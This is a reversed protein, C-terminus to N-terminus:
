RNATMHPKNGTNRSMGGTFTKEIRELIQAARVDWTGAELLRGHNRDVFEQYDGVNQLIDDLQEAPRELDAEIVPNYGFLEVLEEPARGLPLCKSAFTEFYRHTVTEIGAAYPHTLAGPFCISIKANGMGEALSRKDNPFIKQGKVAEFLHSRGTERLIGVIQSHYRDYKRGLELVDTPRDVLNKRPCYDAPDTAEPMWVVNMGPMRRQMEEASQRASIFALKIQHRRFFSEWEDYRHPWCDFSFTVVEQFCGKPFLLYESINHAPVLLIGDPATMFRRMLKLKGLVKGIFTIIEHKQQIESRIGLRAFSEEMSFIQYISVLKDNPRITAFVLRDRLGGAPTKDSRM